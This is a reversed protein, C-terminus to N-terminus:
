SAQDALFRGNSKLLESHTCRWSSSNAHEQAEESESHCLTLPNHNSLLSTAPTNRPTASQGIWRSNRGSLAVIQQGIFSAKRLWTFCVGSSIMEHSSPCGAARRIRFVTWLKAGHSM